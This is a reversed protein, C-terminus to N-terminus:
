QDVSWNMIILVVWFTIFVFLNWVMKCSAWKSIVLSFILRIFTEFSSRNYLMKVWCECWSKSSISMQAFKLTFRTHFLGFCGDLRTRLFLHESIHLLNVPSWGYRLAIKNFNCKSMSTRKYIQQMNESCRRRLAGRSPQKQVTCDLGIFYPNLYQYLHSRM